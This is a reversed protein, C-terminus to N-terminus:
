SYSQFVLSNGTSVGGERDVFYPHSLNPQDILYQRIALPLAALDTYKACYPDYIIPLGSLQSLQRLLRTGESKMVAINLGYNTQLEGVSVAMSDLTNQALASDISVLHGILVNCLGLRSPSLNPELDDNWYGLYASISM